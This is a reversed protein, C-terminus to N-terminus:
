DSLLRFIRIKIAKRHDTYSIYLLNHRRDIQLYPSTFIGDADDELRLLEEFHHGDSSIYLALPANKSTDVASVDESDCAILRGCCILHNM